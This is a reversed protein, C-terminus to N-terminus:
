GYHCEAQNNRKDSLGFDFCVCNAAISACKLVIDAAAFYCQLNRIRRQHHRDDCRNGTRTVAISGSDLPKAM